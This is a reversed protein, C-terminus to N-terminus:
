RLQWRGARVAQFNNSLSMAEGRLNQKQRQRSLPAACNTFTNVTPSITDLRERFVAVAALM